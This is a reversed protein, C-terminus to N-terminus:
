HKNVFFIVSGVSGGVVLMVFVIIILSNMKKRQQDPQLSPFLFRSLMQTM